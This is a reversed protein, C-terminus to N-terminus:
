CWLNIRRNIIPCLLADHSLMNLTHLTTPRDVLEIDEVSQDDETM